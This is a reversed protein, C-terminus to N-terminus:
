IGKGSYELLLRGRNTTISDTGIDLTFEFVESIQNYAQESIRFTLKLAKKTRPRITIEDGGSANEVFLLQGNKKTAHVNVDRTVLVCEHDTSNEVALLLDMDALKSGSLREVPKQLEGSISEHLIRLSM